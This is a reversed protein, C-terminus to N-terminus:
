KWEIIIIFFKGKISSDCVWGIFCSRAMVGLRVNHKKNLWIGKFVSEYMKNEIKQEFHLNHYISRNSCELFM